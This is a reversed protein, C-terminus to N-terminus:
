GDESYGLNSSPNPQIKPKPAANQEFNRPEQRIQTAISPDIQLIPSVNPDGIAEPNIVTVAPAHRGTAILTPEDIPVWQPEVTTAIFPQQDRYYDDGLMAALEQAAAGPTPFTTSLPRTTRDPLTTAVAYVRREPQPKITVGRAVLGEALAAAGLDHNGDVDRIMAAVAEIVSADDDSM